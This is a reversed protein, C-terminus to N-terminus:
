ITSRIGITIRDTKSKIHKHPNTLLITLLDHDFFILNKKPQRFYYALSFAEFTFNETM